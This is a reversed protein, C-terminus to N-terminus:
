GCYKVYRILEDDKFDRYHYYRLKIPNALSAVEVTKKPSVILFRILITDLRKVCTDYRAYMCQEGGCTFIDYFRGVVKHDEPYHVDYPARKIYEKIEGPKSCKTIEQTSSM